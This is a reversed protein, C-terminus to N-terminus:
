EDEGCASEGLAEDFARYIFFSFVPFADRQWAHIYIPFDDVFAHHCVGISMIFDRKMLAYTAEHEAADAILVVGDVVHHVWGMVVMYKFGNMHQIFHFDGGPLFGRENIWDFGDSHLFDSGFIQLTGGTAGECTTKLVVGRNVHGIVIGDSTGFLDLEKAQATDVSLHHGFDNGIETTQGGSEAQIIYRSRPHVANM